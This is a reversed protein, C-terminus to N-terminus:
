AELAFFIITLLGFALAVFGTLRNAQFPVHRTLWRLFHAQLTLAPLTGLWFLGMYVAGKLASGTAVAGAVFIYLHGCPLLIAILGSLWALSWGPLGLHRAVQRSQRWVIGHIRAQLSKLWRSSVWTLYGCLLMLLVVLLALAVASLWPTKLNIILQEGFHGVGAGLLIYSTFRGLQYSIHRTTTSGIATVLPGCMGMCHVSGLLSALLLSGPFAWNLTTSLMEHHSHDM